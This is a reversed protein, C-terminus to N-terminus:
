FFWRKKDLRQFHEACQAQLLTGAPAAACAAAALEKAKDRGGGIDKDAEESFRSFRLLTMARLEPSKGSLSLAREYCAIATRQNGQSGQLKQWMGSLQAEALLLRVLNDSDNLLPELDDCEKQLRGCSVDTQADYGRLSKRTGFDDGFMRRLAEEIAQLRAEAPRNDTTSDAPPTSRPIRESLQYIIGRLREKGVPRLWFPALSWVKDTAEDLRKPDTALGVLGIGLKKVLDGVRQLLEEKSLM